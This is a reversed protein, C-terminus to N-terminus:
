ADYHLQDDLAGGMSSCFFGSEESTPGSISFAPPTGSSPRHMCRLPVSACMSIQILPLYEWALSACSNLSETEQYSTDLLLPILIM